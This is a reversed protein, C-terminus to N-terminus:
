PQIQPIMERPIKRVIVTDRGEMILKVLRHLGDLILWKGKSNEMIDIPYKTDCEYVRQTHEPHDDPHLIVERATLDYPATGDSWFPLDLIWDLEQLSIDESPVALAWVKKEEWHFDFGNEKIIAPLEIDM